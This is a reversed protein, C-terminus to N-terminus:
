YLQDGSLRLTQSSKARFVHEVKEAKPGSRLGPRNYALELLAIAQHGSYTLTEWSGVRDQRDYHTRTAKIGEETLKTQLWDTFVISKISYQVGINREGHKLQISGDGDTFGRLFDPFSDTKVERLNYTKRPILGAELYPACFAAGAKTTRWVPKETPRVTRQCIPRTTGLASHLDRIIQEDTSLWM